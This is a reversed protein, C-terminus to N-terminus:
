PASYPLCGSICVLAERCMDLVGKVPFHQYTCDQWCACGGAKRKVAAKEAGLSLNRTTVKLKHIASLGRLLISIHSAGSRRKLYQNQICCCFYVTNEQLVTGHQGLLAMLFFLPSSPPVCLPWLVHHDLFSHSNFSNSSILGFTLVQKLFCSCEKLKRLGM